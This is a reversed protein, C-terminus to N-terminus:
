SWGIAGPHKKNVLLHKALKKLIVDDKNVFSEGTKVVSKEPNLLIIPNNAMVDKDMYDEIFDYGKDVYEKILRKGAYTDRQTISNIGVRFLNTNLSYDALKEAKITLEKELKADNLVKPNERLISKRYMETVSEKLQERFYDDKSWLEDFIKKATEKDPGYLDHKPKLTVDYRNGTGDFDKLGYKYVIRDYKDYSGYLPKNTLKIDKKSAMHHIETDEKIVQSIKKLEDSMIEKAKSELLKSNNSEIALKAIHNIAGTRFAVYCGTGIMLGLSATKIARSIREYEEPNIGNKNTKNQTLPYPPGNRVGWKQGIKGHHILYKNM